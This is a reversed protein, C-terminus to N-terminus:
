PGVPIAYRASLYASIKVTEATTLERNLEIVEAVAGGNLPRQGQTNGGIEFAPLAGAFSNGTREPTLASVRLKTTPDNYVWYLIKPTTSDPTTGDFALAVDIGYLGGETTMWWQNAAKAGVFNEVGVHGDNGVVILTRPQANPARNPEDLFQNTFHLTNQGNYNPDAPVRTPQSSLLGANTVDRGSGSQDAWRTVHAIVGLDARLWLRLGPIARPSSLPTASPGTVPINYRQSAYAVLSAALEPTLVGDGIIIEAITGQLSNGTGFSWGIALRGLQPIGTDAIGVGGRQTVPSPTTSNLRITSSDPDNFQTMFIVPQQVDEAVTYLEIDTPVPNPASSGFRPVGIFGPPVGYTAQYWENQTTDGIWPRHAPLADDKGIVMLWFPQNVPADNWLGALQLTQGIIADFHITQQGGFDPDNPTVTGGDTTTEVANRNPDGSGSQDNWQVLSTLTVGLDGRLWWSLGPISAPSFVGIGAELEALVEIRARTAPDVKRRLQDLAAIEQQLGNVSFLVAQSRAHAVLQELRELQARIAQRM